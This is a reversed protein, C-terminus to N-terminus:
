YDINSTQTPVSVCSVPPQFAQLVNKSIALLEIDQSERTVLKSFLLWIFIFNNQIKGFSIIVYLEWNEGFNIYNSFICM